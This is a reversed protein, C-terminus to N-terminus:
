EWILRWKVFIEKQPTKISEKFCIRSFMTGDISMLGAESIISNSTGNAEDKGVRFNFEIYFPAILKEIILEHVEEKRYHENYLTTDNPNPVQLNGNVVGGDGLALSTIQKGTDGFGLLGSLIEFSNNVILNKKHLIRKHTGDDQVEFMTFIGATPKFRETIM